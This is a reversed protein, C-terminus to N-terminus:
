QKNAKSELYKVAFSCVPRITLHQQEAYALAAEMLLSGIGRGSQYAYTHLIVMETDTQEFEMKGVPTDAERALVQNNEVHTTIM